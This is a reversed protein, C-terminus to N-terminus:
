HLLSLLLFLFFIGKVQQTYKPLKQSMSHLYRCYMQLTATHHQCSQRCTPKLSIKASFQSHTAIFILSIRFTETFRRPQRAQCTHSSSVVATHRGQDTFMSASIFHLNCWTCASNVSTTHEARSVVTTKKKIPNTTMLFNFPVIGAEVLTQKCTNPPVLAYSFFNYLTKHKCLFSHSSQYIDKLSTTSNRLQPYSTEKSTPNHSSFFFFFILYM